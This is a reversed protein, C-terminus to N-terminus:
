ESEISSIWGISTRERKGVKEGEGEGKNGGGGRGREERDMEKM